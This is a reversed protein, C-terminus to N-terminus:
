QIGTENSSSDGGEKTINLGSAVWHATRCFNASCELIDKNELYNRGICPTCHAALDCVRCKNLDTFKVSRLNLLEKSPNTQWIERFTKDRLSGLNLPLIVCPSVMGTPSINCFHRGAGCLETHPSRSAYSQSNEETTERPTNDKVFQLLYEKQDNNDALFCLPDKSGDRKPILLTSVSLKAGLQSAFTKMKSIEKVNQKMMCFKIVTPVGAKKLLDVAEITRAHSGPISTIQDHVQPTTGYLSIDVQTVGSVKLKDAVRSNILTGNTLLIVLFHKTSYNLIDLLDERLFIEGGSFVITPTGVNQLQDLINTIESFGLEDNSDYPDFYCHICRLNCRATLEFHALWPINLASYRKRIDGVLM